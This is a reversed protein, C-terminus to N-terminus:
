DGTAPQSPAGTEPIDKTEIFGLGIITEDSEDDDFARVLRRPRGPRKTQRHMRLRTM